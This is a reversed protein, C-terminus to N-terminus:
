NDECDFRITQPSDAEPLRGLRDDGRGQDAPQRAPRVVRRWGRTQVFTGNTSQDILVFKSRNIEIRAHIRSILNGKIVIDNDEARGIAISSHTEDLMLSGSGPFRLKLRM